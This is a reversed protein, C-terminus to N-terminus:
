ISKQLIVHCQLSYYLLVASFAAKIVPIFQM